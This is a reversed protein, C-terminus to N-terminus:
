FTQSVGVFDDAFYTVDCYDTMRLSGSDSKGVSDALVKTLVSALHDTASFGDSSAREVLAGRAVVAADAATLYEAVSLHIGLFSSDQVAISDAAPKGTTVSSADTATFGDTANRSLLIAKHDAATATEATTRSLAFRYLESTSRQESLGKGIQRQTIADTFSRAEYFVKGVTKIPGHEGVYDQAFYDPAYDEPGSVAPGEDIYLTEETLGKSLSKRAADTTHGSDRLTKSFAAVIEEATTLADQSRKSLLLRAADTKAVSDSLSRMYDVVLHAQDATSVVDTRSKFFAIYQEDQATATGDLDDTADVIDALRKSFEKSNIADGAAVLDDLARGIQVDIFDSTSLYEHFVKTTRLATLDELPLLEDFAKNIAIFAHDSVQAADDRSLLKLFEGSVAAAKLITAQTAAQLQQASAAASLKVYAAAAKIRVIALRADM